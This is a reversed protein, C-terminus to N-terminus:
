DEVWDLLGSEVPVHHYPATLAADRAVDGVTPIAAWGFLGLECM